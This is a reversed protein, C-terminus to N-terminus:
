VNNSGINRIRATIIALTSPTVPEQVNDGGLELNPSRSGRLVRESSLRHSDSVHTCKLFLIEFKNLRRVESRKDTILIM